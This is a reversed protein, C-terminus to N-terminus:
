KFEETLLAKLQQLTQRLADSEDFDCADELVAITQHFLELPINIM